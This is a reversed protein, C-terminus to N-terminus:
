LRGIPSINTEMHAWMHTHNCAHTCTTPPRYCLHSVARTCAHTRAYMSHAHMHVHPSHVHMCTYLSHVHMIAHMSHVHTHAHQTCVHTRAHTSHCWGAAVIRNNHTSLTVRLTWWQSISEPHSGAVVVVVVHMKLWGASNLESTVQWGLSDPEWALEACFCSEWDLQTTHNQCFHMRVFWDEIDLKLEEVLLGFQICYFGYVCVYIFCDASIRTVIVEKILVKNEDFWSWNWRYIMFGFIYWNLDSSSQLVFVFSAFSWKAVKCSTVLCM